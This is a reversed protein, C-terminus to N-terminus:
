DYGGFMFVSLQEDGPNMLGHLNGGKLVACHGAQLTRIELCRERTDTQCWDGVIMFANGNMLLFVEQNDRHRHLGIAGGPMVLHLDMYNVAMFPEVDGNHGKHGFADFNWPMLTRDLPHTDAFRGYSSLLNRYEVRGIGGHTNPSMGVALYNQWGRVVMNFQYVYNAGWKSDWFTATSDSFAVEIRLPLIPHMANNVAVQTVDRGDLGERDFDSACGQVIDPRAILEGSQLAAFGRDDLHDALDAGPYGWIEVEYRDSATNYPMTLTQFAADGVKVAVKIDSGLAHGSAQSLRSDPGGRYSIRLYPGIWDSTAALGRVLFTDTTHFDDVNQKQFDLKNDQQAPDLINHDDGSPGYMTLDAIPFLYQTQESLYFQRAAGFHVREMLGLLKVLPNQWNYPPSTGPPVNVVVDSHVIEV